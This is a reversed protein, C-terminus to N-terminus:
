RERPLINLFAKLEDQFRLLWERCQNKYRQRKEEYILRHYLVRFMEYFLSRQWLTDQPYETRLRGEIRIKAKGERGFEKSPRAEGELTVIVQIFSFRDMDKILEFRVRFKEGAESKDWVFDREQLEGPDHRFITAFLEKIKEYLRQPNPGEYTLLLYPVGPLVSGPATALCDDHIVLKTRAFVPM